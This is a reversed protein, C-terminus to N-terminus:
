FGLVCHTVWVECCIQCKFHVFPFCKCGFAICRIRDLNSIPKNPAIKDQSRWPLFGSEVQTNGRNDREKESQLHTDLRKRSDPSSYRHNFPCSFSRGLSSLSFGRELNQHPGSRRATNQTHRVGFSCKTHYNGTKM